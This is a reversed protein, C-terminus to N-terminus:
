YFLYEAPLSVSDVPRYYFHNEWDSPEPEDYGWICYHGNDLTIGPYDPCEKIHLEMAYKRAEEPCDTGYVQINCDDDM